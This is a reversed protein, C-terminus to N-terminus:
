GGNASPSVCSYGLLGSQAGWVPAARDPGCENGSQFLGSASRTTFPAMTPYQAQYRATLDDQVVRTASEADGTYCVCLLLAAILRVKTM